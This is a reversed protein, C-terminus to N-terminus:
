EVGVAGLRERKCGRPATAVIVIERTAQSKTSLVYKYEKAVVRSVSHYYKGLLGEIDDPTPYGDDRYSIVLSSSAFKEFLDAFAQQLNCSAFWQKNAPYFPRHKLNLNIESPILDYHKIADLFHYFNFYNSEQQGTSKAYPTDIYVLDWHGEIDFASEKRVEVFSSRNYSRAFALELYFKKMHEIFPREWTAKNGFSRNVERTRMELNARHFLNYPRKCLMSQFLLYYAESRTIDDDINAINQALIDLQDNEEDLFYIGSFFESVYHNYSRGKRKKFLQLIEKETLRVPGPMLLAKAIECNAPLIDNYTIDKGMRSLLFSVSGTGGFADLASEFGVGTFVEYLYPLLKRKSGQYRTNPMGDWPSEFGLLCSQKGTEWKTCHVVSSKSIM